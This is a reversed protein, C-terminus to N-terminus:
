SVLYIAVFEVMQELSHVNVTQVIEQQCCILLRYKSSDLILQNILRRIIIGLAVSVLHSFLCIKKLHCVQINTCVCNSSSSILITAIGKFECISQTERLPETCGRGVSTRTREEKYAKASPCQSVPVSVVSNPTKVWSSWKGYKCPISNCHTFLSPVRIRLPHTCPLKRREKTVSYTTPLQLVLLICCM